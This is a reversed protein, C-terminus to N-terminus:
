KREEVHQRTQEAEEGEDDIDKELVEVTTEMREGVRVNGADPNVAVDPVMKVELSDSLHENGITLEVKVLEQMGNDQEPVDLQLGYLPPKSRNVDAAHIVYRDGHQEINPDGIQPVEQAITEITTGNRETLELVPNTAVIDQADKVQNKFFEDLERPTDLHSYEGGSNMSTEKIYEQEYNGGVGASHVTIGAQNLDEGVQTYLETDEADRSWGSGDLDFKSVDMRNPKGDTILIILQVADTESTGVGNTNAMESLLRKSKGLGDTINTKGSARLGSLAERARQTQNGSVPELVVDATGSFTVAGVTDNASLNGVADKVGEEATRIPGNSMTGSCDICFVINLPLDNTGLGGAGIEIEATTGGGSNPLQTDELRTDLTSNM